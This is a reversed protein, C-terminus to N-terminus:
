RCSSAAAGSTPASRGTTTTAARSATSTSGPRSDRRTWRRRSASCPPWTKARTASSSRTRRCRARRRCSGSRLWPRAPRFPPVAAAAEDLARAPRRRVGRRRRLRAHAREGAAPVRGATTRDDHPRRRAGRRRRASRFSAQAEGHAPVAARALQLFRQRDAAPPQARARPVAEGADPARVAARLHVRAHGRRLDRLDAIGVAPRAPPLRGARQLSAASPPCTQSAIRRM